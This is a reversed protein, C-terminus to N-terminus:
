TQSCRISFHGFFFLSPEFSVSLSYSHQISRDIFFLPAYRPSPVVETVVAQGSLRVATYVRGRTAAFIFRGYLCVFFFRRKLALVYKVRICTLTLRNLRLRILFVGDDTKVTWGPRSLKCCPIFRVAILSARKPGRVKVVSPRSEEVFM